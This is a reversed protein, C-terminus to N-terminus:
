KIKDKVGAAKELRRLIRLARFVALSNRSATACEIFRWAGNVSPPKVFEGSM